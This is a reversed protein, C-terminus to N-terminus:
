KKIFFFDVGNHPTIKLSRRDLSDLVSKVYEKSVGFVQSIDDLSCPRMSILRELQAQTLECGEFEHIYNGVNEVRIGESKFYLAADLLTKEPVTKARSFAPPRHVTNLQVLDYRCRKIVGAIKKLEDMNDNLGECLLVEIMLKGSFENSFKVVAENIAVIDLNRHPACVQKYVEPTAADISPVVVDAFSLEKRVNEDTFLTSNTLVAVPHESVKKIEGLIYGLNLNLTPEGAGTVTVIDLKDKLKPYKEKFEAIIDDPDDFNRRDTICSTTKGVECYICNLTCIKLPIIDVGLSRGLRRSPVPGFLYNYRDTYIRM